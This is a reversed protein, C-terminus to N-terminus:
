HTHIETALDGEEEYIERGVTLQLDVDAPGGELFRVTVQDSERLRDEPRDARGTIELRPGERLLDDTLVTGTAGPVPRVAIHHDFDPAKTIRHALFLEKGKGFALYNLAAPRSAHHHFPHFHVIDQVAVTVQDLIEVGGREFHGRFLTGTFSTLKPRQGEPAILDSIRFPEPALTYVATGTTRRDDVYLQRADGAASQLTVELLYQFAHPAMFMPMHSLYVTEEGVVVMGHTAKPELDPM